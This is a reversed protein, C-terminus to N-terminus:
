AGARVTAVPTLHPRRGAAGHAPRRALRRRRADREYQRMTGIPRFGVKTYANIARANAAAPDITIRHHGREEILLRVIRRVAEAGV